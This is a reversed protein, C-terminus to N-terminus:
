LRSPLLVCCMDAITVCGSPLHQFRSLTGRPWVIGRPQKQDANPLCIPPEPQAESPLPPWLPLSHPETPMQPPSVFHCELLHVARFVLSPDSCSGAFVVPFSTPNRSSGGSRQPLTTPHALAPVCPSLIHPACPLLPVSRALFSPLTLTGSPQPQVLPQQSFPVASDTLSSHHGSLILSM